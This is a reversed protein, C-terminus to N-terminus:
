PSAIRKGTDDVNNRAPGLEIKAAGVESRETLDSLRKASENASEEAKALIKTLEDVQVSMVAIASGLGGELDNLKKLRRSLVFCYVCAAITGAILLGDAITLGALM